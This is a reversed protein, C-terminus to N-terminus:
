HTLQFHLYSFFSVVEVKAAMSWTKRCFVMKEMPVFIKFNASHFGLRAGESNVSLKKFGLRSINHHYRRMRNVLKYYFGVVGLDGNQLKRQLNQQVESSVEIVQM